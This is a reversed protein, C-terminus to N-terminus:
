QSFIWRAFEKANYIGPTFIRLFEDSKLKGIMNIKVSIRRPDTGSLNIQFDDVIGTGLHESKEISTGDGIERVIEKKAADISRLSYSVKKLARDNTYFSISNANTPASCVPTFDKQSGNAYTMKGPIASRLDLDIYRFIIAALRTHDSADQGQQTGRMASSLIRSVGMVIVAFIFIVVIVEVMTFASKRGLRFIM